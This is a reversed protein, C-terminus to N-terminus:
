RVDVRTVSNRYNAVWIRGEPDLATRVSGFSAVSRVRTSADVELTEADLHSIAGNEGVFWVGQEDASFAHFRDTRVPPPLLEGTAADIRMIVPHDGSGTGVSPDYTSLWGWLWVVEEAPAVDLGALGDVRFLVSMTVPDVKYLGPEKGSTSTSDVVWLADDDVVVDRTRGELALSATVANTSPDIRLLEGTRGDFDRTAWIAEESAAVDIAYRGVPVRAMVGGTEPDIRVVEDFGVVWLSGAGFALRGGGEVSPLRDTVENLEPDIRAVSFSEGPGEFDNVTVWVADDGTTIDLPVDGVPIVASVRPDIQGSPADAEQALGAPRAVPQREARAACAITPLLLGLAVLARALTGQSRHVLM